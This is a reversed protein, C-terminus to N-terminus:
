AGLPSGTKEVPTAAATEVELHPKPTDEQAAPQAPQAPPEAEAPKMPVLGDLSAGVLLASVPLGGLSSGLM